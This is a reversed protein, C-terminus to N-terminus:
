LGSPTLANRLVWYVRSDLSVVPGCGPRCLTLTAVTSLTVRESRQGPPLSLGIVLFDKGRLALPIEIVQGVQIQAPM